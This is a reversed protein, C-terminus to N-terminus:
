DKTTRGDLWERDHRVQVGIRRASLYTIRPGNGNAVLRRGTSYSLGKDSCWERFPIVRLDDAPASPMEGARLERDIRNLMKIVWRSLIHFTRIM